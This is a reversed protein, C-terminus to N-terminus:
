EYTYRYNEAVINETDPLYTVEPEPWPEPPEIWYCRDYPYFTKDYCAELEYLKHKSELLRQIWNFINKM